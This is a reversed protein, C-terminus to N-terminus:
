YVEESTFITRKDGWCIAIRNFYLRTPLAQRRYGESYLPPNEMVAAASGEPGITAHPMYDSFEGSDWSSVLNRALLLEPSPYLALVDVREGEDGLQEIGTVPLNFNKTLRLASIGDKILRNHDAETRDAIPGGWVLTM